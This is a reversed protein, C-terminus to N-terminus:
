PMKRDIRVRLGSQFIPNKLWVIRASSHDPHVSIVQLRGEPEPPTGTGETWVVVYEDGVKVGHDSGQDLFAVDNLDELPHDNAFAVITADAGPAAPAPRMGPQLLFDPLSTVLDGVSMRDMVDVVLGIAGGPVADSVTIVGTPILVTGLDRIARGVRFALLQAGRAPTAGTFALELKDYPLATSRPVKEDEAGTFELITGLHEPPSGEASLWPAAYFVGRPVALRSREVAATAYGEGESRPYFITREVAVGSAAPRPAAAPDASAPAAPEVTVQQVVQTAAVDPIVLDEGPYIWHPNTVVTRNAEYIRPWQYPDSYYRQALSWLTEGGLVHHTAPTQQAGLVSPLVILALLASASRVM